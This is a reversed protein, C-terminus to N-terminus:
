AASELLPMDVVWFYYGYEVLIKTLQEALVKSVEWDLDENEPMKVAVRVTNGEEQLIKVAFDTYHQKMEAIVGELLEKQKKNM